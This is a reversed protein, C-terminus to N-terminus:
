MQEDCVQDATRPQMTEILEPRDGSLRNSTKANHRMNNACSDTVVICNVNSVIDLGAKVFHVGSLEIRVNENAAHKVTTM